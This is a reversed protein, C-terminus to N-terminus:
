CTESLVTLYMLNNFESKLHTWPFLTTLLTLTFIVGLIINFVFQWYWLTSIYTFYLYELITSIPAM